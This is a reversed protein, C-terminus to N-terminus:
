YQLLDDDTASDSSYSGLSPLGCPEGNQQSSKTSVTQLRRAAPLAHSSEMVVANGTDASIAPSHHEQTLTLQPTFVLCWPKVPPWPLM